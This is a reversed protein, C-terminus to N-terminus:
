DALLAALAPADGREMALEARLSDRDRRLTAIAAIREGQWYAVTCNRHELSGTLQTRDWAKAHGVYDIALDYHRSWFFPVIAVREGHGLINRAATQGLRQAVVWHEVRIPEVRIPEGAPAYPWRASDGAAFIGPASTALFDDVVVGNDVAIGAKEALTVAPRVGIGAVVLDAAIREGDELTVEGAGIEKATPGLHFRVGHEVHLDHVFKGIELGLVKQLPLGAPAVVDVEVGRVRLSAAVELGIFSAGLVVARRAAAAAAIIARSDALTRLYHVRGGPDVASPLRVPDAGTALLLAGFRRESGDDLTLRKAGADIAVVRRGTLLEIGQQEYFSPTRLPIWEEPATGALYDKSLNPRDCPADPGAEIVTIPGAYGERRLTEAASNGAAGGGVIVVSAPPVAQTTPTTIPRPAEGEVPRPALKEVVYVRGDREEVRWRPLDNLAPPRLAEGTRLSFCAHHWPCRVEDGAVLGKDLPGGYHTCRAGVAFLERGRRLLLAPKGDAHGVIMGDDALESSAIGATLDPGELPKKSASM